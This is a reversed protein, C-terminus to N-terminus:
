SISLNHCLLLLLQLVITVCNYVAVYRYSRMLSTCLRFLGKSATWDQTVRMLEFFSSIHGTLSIMPKMESELECIVPTGVSGLLKMVYNDESHDAAGNTNPNPHLLIPGLCRAASPLPVTKYITCRDVKGSFLLVLDEYNVAAMMSIIIQNQRFPLLPLIEKAVNPLLGIFIINSNTVLEDNSVINIITPFKEKLLQSKEKNRQSILIQKSFHLQNDNTTVSESNSNHYHQEIVTAYGTCVASSIKGCGLFGITLTM